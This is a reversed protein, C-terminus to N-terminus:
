LGAERTRDIAMKAAGYCGARNGLEAAHVPVNVGMGEVKALLATWFAEKSEIVGGGLVICAPNIGTHINYIVTALLGLWTDVVTVAREDGQGYLPWIDRGHGISASVTERALRALAGGSLYQEICGRNGCNCPLGGPVLIVHGWEGGNWTAGQQIRGNALNGGGVGTGLTLMVASDYGRAAGLWHEGLLAANADNDVYVPSELGLERPINIHMWGPLNVTAFVVDGNRSNIRGASGIGIAAIGTAARASLESVVGRTVDLIADKGAQARTGRRTEAHVGGTEDCLLGKVETGGIDIGLYHM